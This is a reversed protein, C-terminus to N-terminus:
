DVIIEIRNNKKRGSLSKNTAIPEEEGRSTATVKRRPIGRRATLYWKVQRSMKLGQTFNDQSSGVNDTHGLITVKKDPNDRLLRKLETAYIVLEKDLILDTSNYHPYFINSSFSPGILASLEKKFELEPEDKSYDITDSIAISKQIEEALLSSTEREIGYLDLSDPKPYHDNNDTQAIALPSQKIVEDKSILNKLLRTDETIEQIASDSNSERTSVFYICGSTWMLFVFFAGFFGKM